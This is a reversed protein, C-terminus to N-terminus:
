RAFAWIKWKQLAMKCVLSGRTTNAVFDHEIFYQADTVTDIKSRIRKAVHNLKRIYQWFTKIPIGAWEDANTQDVTEKEMNSIAVPYARRFIACAYVYLAM